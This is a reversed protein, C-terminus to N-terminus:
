TTQPTREGATDRMCVQAQAIAHMLLEGALRTIPVDLEASLDQLTHYSTTSIRATQNYTSKNNQILRTLLTAIDGEM